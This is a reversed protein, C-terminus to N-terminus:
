EQMTELVFDRYTKDIYYPPKDLSYKDMLRKNAGLFDYLNRADDKRGWYEFIMGSIFFLHFANENTQEKNRFNKLSTFIINMNHGLGFDMLGIAVTVHDIAYGLYTTDLITDKVSEEFCLMARNLYEDIAIRTSDDREDANVRIVQFLVIAIVMCAKKM